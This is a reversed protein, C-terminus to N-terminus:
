HDFDKVITEYIKSFANLHHKVKEQTSSSINRLHKRICIVMRTTHHMKYETYKLGHRPRPRNIDCRHSRKKM